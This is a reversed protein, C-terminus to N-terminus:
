GGESVALIKGDPSSRLEGSHSLKLRRPEREGGMDWTWLSKENTVALLSRGDRALLLSHITENAASLSRIERGTEADWLIIRHEQYSSIAVTRGDPSSATREIESRHGAIPALDRGTLSDRLRISHGDICGEICALQGKPSFAVARIFTGDAFRRREKGTAVDWVRLGGDWATTVLDRGDPSFALFWPGYEVGDNKKLPRIPIRSTEKGNQTNWLKIDTAWYSWNSGPGTKVRKRARSAMVAGNPSLAIGAVDDDAIARIEKGSRVDWLRIMGDGGASVLTKSNPTFAPESVVFDTGFTIKHGKLARLEKGTAADLLVIAGDKRPFYALIKGDPPFSGRQRIGGTGFRYLQKGSTLEYVACGGMDDGWGGVAVLKGDPSLDAPESPQPLDAGFRRVLQGTAAEWARAGGRGGSVLYRGDPTYALSQFGDSSRFRLTGLRASAGPPLPDGHCDVQQPASKSQGSV